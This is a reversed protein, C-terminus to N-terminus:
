QRLAKVGKLAKNGFDFLAMNEWPSGDAAEPGKYAVWEPAWYCIGLGNKEAVIKRLELLFNYQGEESAPFGDILHEPLGVLNTTWDNWGLTFPYATEAIVLKKGTLTNLQGITNDLESLLPTHWRSYYSLATLDYDLSKNKLLTFFPISGDSGAFHIITKASSVERVAQLGKSLLFVFSEENNIHGDPWLFGNNIENGIQIYDPNIKNVVQKTYTFVCDALVNVEASAWAAPKTQQGPDAWHDAYHLTIWVKMGKNRIEEAFEVVEDLSSNVSEPTHWVRLRVTNCGAKRFIELADEVNGEPNRFQVNYSRLEPLFSLDIARMELPYASLSDPGQDNGCSHGVLIVPLAVLFGILKKNM